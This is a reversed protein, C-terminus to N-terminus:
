MIYTLKRFKVPVISSHNWFIADTGSIAHADYGRARPMAHGLM